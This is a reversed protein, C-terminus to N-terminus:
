FIIGHLLDPSITKRIWFYFFKVSYRFSIFFGIRTGYNIPVYASVSPKSVVLNRVCGQWDVGIRDGIEALLPEFRQPRMFFDVYPFQEQLQDSKPGGMCGMLALVSEPKNQKVLKMARLTGPM